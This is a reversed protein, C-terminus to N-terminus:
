KEKVPILKIYDEYVEMKYYVGHKDIFKKPLVIRNKAIDVKKDLINDPKMM